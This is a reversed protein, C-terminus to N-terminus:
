SSFSSPLKTCAFFGTILTFVEHFARFFAVKGLASEGKAGKVSSDDFDRDSSGAAGALGPGSAVLASPPVSCSIGAGPDVHTRSAPTDFSASGSSNFSSLPAALSSPLTLASPLLSPPHPASPGLLFVPPVM